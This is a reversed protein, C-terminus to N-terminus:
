SVAPVVAPAARRSMAWGIAVYLLGFAIEGYVPVGSLVVGLLVGVGAWVPLARARLCAIGLLLLGVLLGLLSAPGAPSEFFDGVGTLNLLLIAVQVLSSLVGLVAGTTALSASRPRCLVAIAIIAVPLLLGRGLYGVTSLPGGDPEALHDLGLLVSCLGGGAAAAAGLRALSVNM